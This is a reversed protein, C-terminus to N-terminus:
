KIGFRKKKAEWYIEKNDGHRECSPLIISEVKCSCDDDWLRSGLNMKDYIEWLQKEDEPTM